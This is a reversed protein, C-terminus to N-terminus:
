RVSRRPDLAPRVSPHWRLVAREIAGLALVLVSGTLALAFISGWLQDVDNFAQAKKIAAGLGEDVLAFFEGLVAGVLSLAIAIRGAAFLLPLSGPLRLRWYIERRRADVSQLLELASPDVSRLGTIANFYFPAFCVAATIVLIPRVGAGLWIVVAPAYAIIPTVQVLVVLPQAAGELFPVHVVLSATVLALVFAIALGLLAERATVLANDLYFRPDDLVHRVIDFPAPLEFRPIDFAVVWLQWLLLFGAVGVVPALWRSARM